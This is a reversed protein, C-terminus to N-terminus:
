SSTTIETLRAEDLLVIWGKGHTQLLGERGFRAMEKSVGVRSSVIMEALTQHTLHVGLAVGEETSEGFKDAVELLAVALRTRIERPILRAFAREHRQAWQAYAVLLALACKPDRQVHLELAAKDVAAVRCAAAAIASDRHAGGSRPAPEGFVSGEELLCVIAEKHGAYPKHLKLTGETLFYLYLDPEGFTYIVEKAEFRRHSVRVGAEEL